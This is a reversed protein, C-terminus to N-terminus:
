DALAGLVEANHGHGVTEYGIVTVWPSLALVALCWVMDVGAAALVVPLM